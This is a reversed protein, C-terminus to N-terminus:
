TNGGGGGGQEATLPTDADSATFVPSADGSGFRAYYVGNDEGHVSLYTYATGVGSVVLAVTKGANLADIIDNYSASLTATTDAITATVYLAGIANEIHNLATATIVEGTEWTKPEYAM